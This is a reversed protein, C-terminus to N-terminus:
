QQRRLYPQKAINQKFSKGKLIYPNIMLGFLGASVLALMLDDNPFIFRVILGAPIISLGLALKGTQENLVLFWTFLAIILAYLYGQRTFALDGAFYIKSQVYFEHFHQLSFIAASLLCLSIIKLYIKSLQQTKEIYFRNHSRVNTSMLTLTIVLINEPVGFAVQPHSLRFATYTLMGLYVLNSGFVLGIIFGTFLMIWETTEFATIHFIQLIDVPISFISSGVILCFAAKTASSILDSWTILSQYILTNLPKKIIFYFIIFVSLIMLPTTPELSGLNM